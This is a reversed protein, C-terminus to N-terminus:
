PLFSALRPQQDRLEQTDFNLRLLGDECEILTQIRTTDDLEHVPDGPQEPLCSPEHTCISPTTNAALSRRRYSSQGSQLLSAVVRTVETRPAVAHVECDRATAHLLIHTGPTDDGPWRDRKWESETRLRSSVGAEGIRRMDSTVSTVLLTGM